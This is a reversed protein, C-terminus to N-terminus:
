LKDIIIRYVVSECTFSYKSVFPRLIFGSLGCHIKMPLRFVDGFNRYVLGYFKFVGVNSRASGCFSMPLNMVYSYCRSLKGLSTITGCM